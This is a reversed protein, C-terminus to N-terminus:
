PAEGHSVLQEVAGQAVQCAGEGAGCPYEMLEVQVEAAAALLGQALSGQLAPHIGVFHDALQGPEVRLVGLAGVPALRRGLLQDVVQKVTEVGHMALLQRLQDAQRRADFLDVPFTVVAGVPQGFQQDGHLLFQFAM